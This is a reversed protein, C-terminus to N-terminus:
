FMGSTSNLSLSPDIMLAAATEDWFPFSTGYYKHFLSTYNNKVEYVDDLFEQTPYVQNAVNGAITMSPFSATLAIKAAEPDMILNIKITDALCPRLYIVLM